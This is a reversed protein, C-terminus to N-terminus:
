SDYDFKDFIKNHEILIPIKKSSAISDQKAKRIYKM